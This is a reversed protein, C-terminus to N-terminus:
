DKVVLAAPHAVRMRWKGKHYTLWGRAEIKQGVLTHLNIDSFYHLDRRPIQLAADGDLELWLSNRSEAVKEVRASLLAFGEDGKQLVKSQKFLSRGSWIGREADRATKEHAYYCPNQWLSPPISVAAALGEDLLLASLSRGDSLYPHALLRGYRDKREAAFRLRLQGDGILERVRKRAAEAYPESRGYKHDIEPTNIGAFRVKRGDELRVTDGDYVYAVGVTEDARDLPCAGLPSVALGLAFLAGWRSARKRQRWGAVSKSAATSRASNTSAVM